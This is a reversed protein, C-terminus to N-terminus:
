SDEALQDAEADADVYAQDADDEVVVCACVVETAHGVLEDVAEEVSDELVASHLETAQLEVLV